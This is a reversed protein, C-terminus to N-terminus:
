SEYNKLVMILNEVTNVIAPTVMYYKLINNLMTKYLCKNGTISSGIVASMM